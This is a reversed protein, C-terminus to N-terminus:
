SQEKRSKLWSKADREKKPSEFLNGSRILNVVLMAPMNMIFAAPKVGWNPHKVAKRELSLGHLQEVTEVRVPDPM